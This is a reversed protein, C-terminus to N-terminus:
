GGVCRRDTHRKQTGMGLAKPHLILRKSFQQVSILLGHSSFLTGHVYITRIVYVPYQVSTTCYLSKLGANLSLSKGNELIPIQYLATPRQPSIPLAESIGEVERKEGFAM